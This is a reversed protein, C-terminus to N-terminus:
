SLGERAALFAGMSAGMFCVVHSGLSACSFISEFRNAGSYPSSDRWITSFFSSCSGFFARKLSSFGGGSAEKLSSFETLFDGLSHLLLRYFEVLVPYNILYVSELSLCSCIPIANSM